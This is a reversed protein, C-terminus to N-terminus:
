EPGIRDRLVVIREDGRLARGGTVIPVPMPTVVDPRLGDFFRAGWVRCGARGTVAGGAPARVSRELIRQEPVSGDVQAPV